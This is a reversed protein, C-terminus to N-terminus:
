LRVVALASHEAKLPTLTWDWTPILAEFLHAVAELASKGFGIGLAHQLHQLVQLM